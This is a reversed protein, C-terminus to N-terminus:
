FGYSLRLGLGLFDRRVSLVSSNSFDGLHRQLNGRLGLRFRPNIQYNLSLNIQSGLVANNLNVSAGDLILDRKDIPTDDVPDIVLGSSRQVLYPTLQLDATLTWKPALHFVRGVGLGVGVFELNSVLYHQETTTVISNAGFVTDMPNNNRDVIIMNINNEDFVLSTNKTTFSHSEQSRLYFISAVAYWRESFSYNLDLGLNFGHHLKESSDYETFWDINEIGTYTSRKLTRIYSASLGLTWKSKKSQFKQQTNIQLDNSKISSSTPKLYTWLIELPNITVLTNRIALDQHPINNNSSINDRLGSQILQKQSTLTNNPKGGAKTYDTMTKSYVSSTQNSKNLILTTSHPDNSATTEFNKAESAEEKNQTIPTFTKPVTNELMVPLTTQDPANESLPMKESLQLYVITSLAM